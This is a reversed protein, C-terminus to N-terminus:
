EFRANRCDDDDFVIFFIFRKFLYLLNEPFGRRRRRDAHLEFVPFPPPPAYIVYLVRPKRPPPPPVRNILRASLRARLQPRRSILVDGPSLGSRPPAYRIYYQSALSLTGPRPVYTRISFERSFSQNTPPAFGRLVGCCGGTHYFALKETTGAAAGSGRRLEGSPKKRGM